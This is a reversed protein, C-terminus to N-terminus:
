TLFRAVDFSLFHFPIPIDEGQISYSAGKSEEARRETAGAEGMQTTRRIYVSDINGPSTGAGKEVV